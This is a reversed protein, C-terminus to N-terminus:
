LYLISGPLKQSIVPLTGTTGPFYNININFRQQRWLECSVDCYEYQLLWPSRWTGPDWSVGEGRESGQRSRYKTSVNEYLQRSRMIETLEEKSFNSFIKVKKEKALLKHLQSQRPFPHQELELNWYNSRKVVFMIYQIFLFMVIDRIFIDLSTSM